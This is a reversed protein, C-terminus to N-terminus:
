DLEEVLKAKGEILKITGGRPMAIIDNTVLCRVPTKSQAFIVQENGCETKVKWFKSKTKRMNIV